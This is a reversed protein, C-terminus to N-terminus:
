FLIGSPSAPVFTAPPSCLGSFRRHHSEYDSFRPFNEKKDKLIQPPKRLLELLLNQNHPSQLNKSVLVGNIIRQLLSQPTSDNRVLPNIM